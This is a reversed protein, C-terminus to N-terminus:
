GGAQRGSQRALDNQARSAYQKSVKTADGNGDDWGAQGVSSHKWEQGAQEEMPDLRWKKSFSAQSEALGVGLLLRM